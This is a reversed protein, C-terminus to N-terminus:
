TLRNASQALEIPGTRWFVVRRIKVCFKRRKVHCKRTLSGSLGRTEVTPQIANSRKNQM